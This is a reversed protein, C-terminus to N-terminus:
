FIIQFPAAELLAAQGKARDRRYGTMRITRAMEDLGIRANQILEADMQNRLSIKRTQIFATFVMAFVALMITASILLEILSLGSISQIWKKM